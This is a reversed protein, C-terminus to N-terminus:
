DLKSWGMLSIRRVRVRSAACHGKACPGAEQEASDVRAKPLHILPGPTSARDVFELKRKPSRNISLQLGRCAKHESTTVPPAPPSVLEGAADTIRLQLFKQMIDLMLWKEEEKADQAM